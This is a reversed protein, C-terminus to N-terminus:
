VVEDGSPAVHYSGNSQISNKDHKEEDDGCFAQECALLSPAPLSSCVLGQSNGDAVLVM